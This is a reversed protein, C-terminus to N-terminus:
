IHTMMSMRYYYVLGDVLLYHTKVDKSEEGNLIILRIKSIDDDRTQEIEMDFSVREFDLCDCKEFTDNDPLNCSAFTKPAYQSSDLVAKCKFCITMSM